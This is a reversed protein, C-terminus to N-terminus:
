VKTTGPQYEEAKLDGRKEIEKLMAISADRPEKSSKAQDAALIAYRCM